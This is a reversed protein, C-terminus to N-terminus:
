SAGIKSSGWTAKPQHLALGGEEIRSTIRHPNRIANKKCRSTSNTVEHQLRCKCFPAGQKSHASTCPAPLRFLSPRWRDGAVWKTVHRTTWTWHKEWAFSFIISCLLWDVYMTYIKNHLCCCWGVDSGCIMEHIYLLRHNSIRSLYSRLSVCIGSLFICLCRSNPVGPVLSRTARVISIVKSRLHRKKEWSWLVM